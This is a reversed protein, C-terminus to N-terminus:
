KSSWATTFSFVQRYMNSPFTRPSYTKPVPPKQAGFWTLYLPDKLRPRRSVRWALWINTIRKFHPKWPAGGWVKGELSQWAIPKWWSQVEQDERLFLLAPSSSLQLAPPHCPSSSLCMFVGCLENGKDHNLQKEQIFAWGSQQLGNAVKWLELYTSKKKKGNKATKKNEHLLFNPSTKVLQVSM